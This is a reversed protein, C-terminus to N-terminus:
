RCGLAKRADDVGFALSEAAFRDLLPKHGAGYIALVRDGPQDAIRVLNALIRLNRAHWNGVWVAGPSVKADGFLAIDYYVQASDALQRPHNMTCLFEPLTSRALLEQQAASREGNFLRQLRASEGNANAWAEFDLDAITGPPM